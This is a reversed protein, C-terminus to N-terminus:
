TFDRCVSEGETLFCSPYLWLVSCPHFLLLFFHSAPCKQPSPWGPTAFLRRWIVQQCKSASKFAEHLIKTLALKEVIQFGLQFVSIDSHFKSWVNLACHKIYFSFVVDKKTPQNTQKYINTDKSFHDPDKVLFFFWYLFFCNLLFYSYRVEWFVALSLCMFLLLVWM